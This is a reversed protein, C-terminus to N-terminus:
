PARSSLTSDRHEQELALSSPQCTDRLAMYPAVHIKHVKSLVYAGWAKLWSVPSLSQRTDSSIAMHWPLTDSARPLLRSMHLHRTQRVGHTSSHKNSTSHQLRSLHFFQLNIHSTLGGLRSLHQELQKQWTTQSPCANSTDHSPLRYIQFRQGKRVMPSYM